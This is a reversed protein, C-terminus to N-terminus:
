SLAAPGLGAGRDGRQWKPAATKNGNFVREEAEWAHETARAGPDKAGM